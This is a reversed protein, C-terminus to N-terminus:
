SLDGAVIWEDTARKRITAAAYQGPLNLLGGRSRLTVGAGPSITVLGTNLSCIEIVTGVPFAVSSNPPVTISRASSNNMEVAKGADGLVLTYNETVGTVAVTSAAKADLAGQLGTVDNISHSHSTNAKAAAVADLEAQTAMDAAFSPNPYTGGLVGGAAGTPSGGGGGGAGPLWVNESTDFVPVDGDAPEAAVAVLSLYPPPDAELSGVETM